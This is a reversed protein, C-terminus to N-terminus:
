QIPRGPGSRRIKLPASLQGISAVVAAVDAGAASALDDGLAPRGFGRHPHQHVIEVVLDGLVRLAEDDVAADAARRAVPLAEVLDDFRELPEVVVLGQQDLRALRDADEAVWWSAGRTSM